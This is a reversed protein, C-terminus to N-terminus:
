PKDFWAEFQSNDDYISDGAKRQRPAAQGSGDDRRVEAGSSQQQQQEDGSRSIGLWPLGQAVQPEIWNGTGAPDTPKPAPPPYDSTDLARRQEPHGAEPNAKVAAAEIDHLMNMAKAQEQAERMRRAEDRKHLEDPTDAGEPVAASPNESDEGMREPVSTYRCAILADSSARRHVPASVQAIM